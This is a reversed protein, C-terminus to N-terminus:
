SALWWEEFTVKMSFYGTIHFFGNLEKLPITPSFLAEIQPLSLSFFNYKTFSNIKVLILSIITKAQNPHICIRKFHQLFKDTYLFLHLRAYLGMKWDFKSNWPLKTSTWSRSGWDQLSQQFVDLEWIAAGKQENDCGCLYSYYQKPRSLDLTIKPSQPGLHLPCLGTPYDWGFWPSFSHCSCIYETLWRM